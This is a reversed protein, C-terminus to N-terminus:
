EEPEPLMNNKQLLASLDDTINKIEHALAYLQGEQFRPKDFHLRKNIRLTESDESDSKGMHSWSAHVIKNRKIKCIRTRNIIIKLSKQLESEPFKDHVYSQLSEITSTMSMHTTISLGQEVSLNAYGWIAYEYINELQNWRMAILGICALKENSLNTFETKM